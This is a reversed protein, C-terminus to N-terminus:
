QLKKIEVEKGAAIEDILNESIPTGFPLKNKLFNREPADVGVNIDEAIPMSYNHIHGHLNRINVTKGLLMPYHTLYYQHHNFKVIAGVDQFEFKPAGNEMGPDHKELYKFFTRSDHNGKIFVIKGKLQVLIKYIDSFGQEYQPHMAVDGLHYVTDKENVVANWADVMQQNMEEVSDFLRPAFDNDGLLNEHFFHTDSIFYKM